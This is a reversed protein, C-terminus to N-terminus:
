CWGGGPTLQPLECIEQIADNHNKVFTETIVHRMNEVLLEEDEPQYSVHDEISLRAAEILVKVDIKDIVSHKWLMLFRLANPADKLLPHQYAKQFLKNAAALDDKDHYVAWGRLWHILPDDVGDQVLKTCDEGMKLIRSHDVNIDGLLEMGDHAVQLAMERAPLNAPLRAAYPDLITRQTWKMWAADYDKQTRGKPTITITPMQEAALFAQIDAEPLKQPPEAGSALAVFLFASSLLSCWTKM